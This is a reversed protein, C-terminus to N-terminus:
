RGSVMIAVEGASMGSTTARIGALAQGGFNFVGEASVLELQAWLATAPDLDLTGELLVTGAFPREKSGSVIQVTMDTYDDVPIYPGTTNTDTVLVKQFKMKKRRRKKEWWM